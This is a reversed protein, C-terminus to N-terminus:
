PGSRNAVFSCLRDRSMNGHILLQHVGATAFLSSWISVSSKNFKVMHVGDTKWSSNTRQKKFHQYSFDWIRYQMRTDPKNPAFDYDYNECSRDCM